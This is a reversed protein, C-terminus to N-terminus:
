KRRKFVVATLVMLLLLLGSTLLLWNTDSSKAPSQQGQGRQGGPPMQGPMGGMGPMFGAGAPANAMMELMEQPLGAEEAKKKIEDTIIGGSAQIDQRLEEMLARDMPMRGEMGPLAMQGPMGGMVGEPRGEKGEGLGRGGMGGMGGGMGEGNNTSPQEGSLQQLITDQMASALTLLNPVSRSAMRFDGSAIEPDNGENISQDLGIEESLLQINNQFQEYTYFATPDTKVEEGILRSVKEIERRLYKENLYKEAVEKLYSHYKELYSENELLKAILPRQALAGQTPEDIFVKSFSGGFNFGGFAMNLDWPLITFKGNQDYLYYNHGFNGQYSDFNVLATSVALYRLAMDVDLYKELKEGQNLAKLMTMLASSDAHKKNAKVELGRTDTATNGTYQLTNGTSKYLTGTIDGFNRELYPELISEVALFLGFYEGNVSVKAFSCASVPVGMKEFIRYALFERMYSPDSFGNNLNLQTLGAMTRNKVLSDFNIKFSFRNNKGNAVSRLSSNGKPRVKVLPYVEGNITVTAEVFEEKIANESMSKWAEDDMQIDVQMIEESNFYKQVYESGYVKVLGSGSPPIALMLGLTYTLMMLSLFGILIHNKM